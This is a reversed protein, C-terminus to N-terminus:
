QAHGTLRDQSDPTDNIQATIARQAAAVFVCLLAVIGALDAVNGTVPGVNWWDIVGGTMRDVSNAFGAAAFAVVAAPLWWTRWPRTVAWVAIGAAVVVAILNFAQGDVWSAVVGSGPVAPPGTNLDATGSAVAVTKTIRDIVFVAGGVVAATHQFTVNM